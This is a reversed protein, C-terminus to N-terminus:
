GKPATLTVQTSELVASALRLTEPTPQPLDFTCNVFTVSDLRVPGGRYTVRINEFITNVYYSGDLLVYGGVFRLYKACTDSSPEASFFFVSQTHSTHVQMAGDTCPATEDTIYAM